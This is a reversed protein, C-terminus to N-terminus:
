KIFKRPPTKLYRETFVDDDIGVDYTIKSFDVITKSGKKVNEMARITVTPIGNIEEIKEGIGGELSTVVHVFADYTIAYSKAQSLASKAVESGNYGVLIKMFIEKGPAALTVVM